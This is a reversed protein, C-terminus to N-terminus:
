ALARHPWRMYLAHIAARVDYLILWCVRQVRTFIKARLHSM